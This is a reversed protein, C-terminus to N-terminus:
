TTNSISVSVLIIRVFISWFTRVEMQERRVLLTCARSVKFFM